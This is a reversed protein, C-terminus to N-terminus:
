RANFAAKYGIREILIQADPRREWLRDSAIDPDEHVESEVDIAVFRGHFQPELLSRLKDEYIQLGQHGIADTTLTGTPM